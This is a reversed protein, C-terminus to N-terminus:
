GTTLWHYKVGHPSPHAEAARVGPPSTNPWALKTLPCHTNSVVSPASHGSPVLTGSAMAAWRVHPGFVSAPVMWSLPLLGAQLKGARSGSVASM